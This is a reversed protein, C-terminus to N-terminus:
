ELEFTVTMRASVQIQGLAITNESEPASSVDTQMTNYLMSRGARPSAVNYWSYWESPEERILYPLGIKQGLQGALTQAKERAVTVAMSRAKDQYIKLRGTRFQINNVYNAGAELIDTLLNEFESVKKLIIVISKEVRFDRFALSGDIHHYQPAIHMQETQIHKEEIRYKRAISIIKQVRSDNEKKATGLNKDRTEVGLTLVVEDPIVQITSEGTVTILRPEAFGSCPLSLLVMALVIKM